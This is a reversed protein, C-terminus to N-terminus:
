KLLGEGGSSVIKEREKRGKGGRSGQNKDAASNALHWELLTNREQLAGFFPKKMGKQCAFGGSLTKWLNM